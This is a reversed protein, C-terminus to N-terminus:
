LSMEAFAVTEEVSTKLSAAFFKAWRLADPDEEILPWIDSVFKELYRPDYTVKGMRLLKEMVAIVHARKAAVDKPRRTTQRSGKQPAATSRAGLVGAALVPVGALVLAAAQGWISDSYALAIVLGGLSTLVVLILRKGNM